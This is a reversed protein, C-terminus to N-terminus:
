QPPLAAPSTQQIQTNTDQSCHVLLGCAAFRRTESHGIISFGDNQGDVLRPVGDVSEKIRQRQQDTTVHNVM